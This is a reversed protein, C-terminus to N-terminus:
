ATVQSQELACGYLFYDESHFARIEQRLSESIIPFEKESNSANRFPLENKPIGLFRCLRAWDHTLNEHVGIFDFSSIPVQFLYQSYFNQMEQSLAFRRFSWQERVMRRWVYNKCFQGRKWYVYHSILRQLPDRLFSVLFYKDRSAASINYLYKYPYFHGFVMKGEFGVCNKRMELEIQTFRKERPLRCYSDYDEKLKDGYFKRFVEKMSSGACKPM